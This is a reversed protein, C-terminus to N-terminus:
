RAVVNGQFDLSVSKSSGDKTGTARWIGQDDKKLDKVNTFGQGEIRSKAQGETFSNAGAVPAAPTPTNTTNVANNGPTTAAPPMTTSPAPTVSPTTTSPAPTTTTQGSAAFPVALTMLVAAISAKMTTELKLLELRSRKLRMIFCRLRNCRTGKGIVFTKRFLFSRRNQLKKTIAIASHQTSRRSVIAFWRWTDSCNKM